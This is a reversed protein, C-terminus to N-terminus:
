LHRGPLDVSGSLLAELAMEIQGRALRECRELQELAADEVVEDHTQDCNTCRLEVRYLGEDVIELLRTAVVFPRGCASCTEM